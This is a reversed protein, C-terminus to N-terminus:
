VLGQMRMYIIGALVLLMILVLFYDRGHMEVTNSFTHRSSGFGRLELSLAMTESRALSRLVLPQVVSAYSKMRRLFSSHVDMGRCMQAERVEESEEIFDPIFRLAATFMFAYEYPLKCQKVLSTTLDQLRTTVLLMLFIVAMCFMRLGTEFSSMVEGTVAYQVLGLVVAFVVFAFLAKSQKYLAGALALLLVEICAQMGLHLPNTLIIASLSFCLTALIKTLPAVKGGYENNAAVM